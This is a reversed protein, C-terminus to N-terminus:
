DEYHGGHRELREHLLPEVQGLLQEVAEVESAVERPLKSVLPGLVEALEVQLAKDTAAERLLAAIEEMAGSAGVSLDGGVPSVTEVLVKEVWVQGHAISLAAARVDNAFTEPDGGLGEHAASRGQVLVRLAVVRDESQNIVAGVQEEFFELM